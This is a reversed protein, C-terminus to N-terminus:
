ARQQMSALGPAARPMPRLASIVFRLLRARDTEDFLLLRLKRELEDDKGVTVQPARSETIAPSAPAV